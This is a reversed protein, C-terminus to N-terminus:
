VEQVRFVSFPLILVEKEDSARESITEIDLATGNNRTVYTCMVAIHIAERDPTRRLFQAQANGSFVHAIDQLKSTSLFSKTLIKSNVVYRDLDDRTLLMGRYTQGCFRLHRFTGTHMVIAVLKLLSKVMKYDTVTDVSLPDFFDIAYQAIHRNLYKHFGTTSSYAKIIYIPSSTEALGSFYKKVTEKDRVSLQLDDVYTSMDSAVERYLNGDEDDDFSILLKLQRRLDYGRKRPERYASIWETHLEEGIFRHQDHHYTKSRFLAKISETRAEQYATLGHVSNRISRSAGADLLLAVIEHHGHFSAVHLATSRNSALEDLTKPDM